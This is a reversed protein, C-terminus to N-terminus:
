DLDRQQRPATVLTLTPLQQQPDLEECELEEEATVRAMRAQVAAVLAAVKDPDPPAAAVRDLWDNNNAM